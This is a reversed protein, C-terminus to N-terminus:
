IGELRLIEGIENETISCGNLKLGWLIAELLTRDADAGAPKLKSYLGLEYAVVAIDVSRIPKVMSVEKLFERVKLDDGTVGLHLKKEMRERVAEPREILTKTIFEDIVITDAGIEIATALAEMEAPHCIRIFNDQARFLENSMLLLRESRRKIDENFTQKIIGQELMALIQLAEYKFKKSGLPRDVIEQKVAPPIIFEGQFREKMLPLLWLMNNTAFSILPGSDFVISRM